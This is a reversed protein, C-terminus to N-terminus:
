VGKSSVEFAERDVETLHYNGPKRGHKVMIARSRTAADRFPERRHIITCGFSDIEQEMQTPPVHIVQKRQAESCRQQLMYECDQSSFKDGEEIIATKAGDLGKALDTYTKGVVRVPSNFFAEEQDIARSKGRGRSGYHVLIPVLQPFEECRYTLIGYYVSTKAQLPTLGSAGLMADVYPQLEQQHRKGLSVQEVETQLEKKIGELDVLRAVLNIFEPNEWNAEREITQLDEGSFLDQVKSKLVDTNDYPQM